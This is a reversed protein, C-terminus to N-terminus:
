SAAEYKNTEKKKKDNPGNIQFNKTIFGILNEICNIHINLMTIFLNVRNTSRIEWENLDNFYLLLIFFRRYNKKILIARKDFLKNKKLQFFSPLWRPPKIFQNDTKTALLSSVNAKPYFYRM